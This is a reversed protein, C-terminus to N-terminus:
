RIKGVLRFFLMQLSSISDATRYSRPVQDAVEFCPRGFYKHRLAVVTITPQNTLREALRTCLPRFEPTINVAFECNVMLVAPRLNFGSQGLVPSSHMLLFVCALPSRIYPLSILIETQSLPVSVLISFVANVKLRRILDWRGNAPM